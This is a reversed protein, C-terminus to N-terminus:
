LCERGEKLSTKHGEPINTLAPEPEYPIPDGEKYALVRDWDTRSRTKNTAAAM